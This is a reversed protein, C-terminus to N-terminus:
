PPGVPSVTGALQPDAAPEAPETGGTSQKRWWWYGVAALALVVLVLVIILAASSGGDGGSGTIPTGPETRAMLPEGPNFLNVNWVMAGNEDISDANHEVQRGPLKIRVVFEADSFLEDPFFEADGTATDDFTAEFRWGDGDRRIDFDGTGDGALSESLVQDLEGAAFEQSFRVGCFKGDEYAETTSGEPVDTDTLFEQCLEERTPAEAGEEEFLSALEAAANTDLAVLGSVTGSGDDNVDVDLNIKFCGSLAIVLLAVLPVTRRSM